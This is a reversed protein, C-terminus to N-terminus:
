PRREEDNFGKWYEFTLEVIFHMKEEGRLIKVDNWTMFNERRESKALSGPRAGCVFGLLWALQHQASIERCPTQIYEKEL